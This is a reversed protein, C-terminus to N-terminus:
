CVVMSHSSLLIRLFICLLSLYNVQTHHTCLKSDCWWPLLVVSAKSQIIDKTSFFGVNLQMKSLTLCDTNSCHSSPSSVSSERYHLIMIHVWYKFLPSFFMVKATHYFWQTIITLQGAIQLVCMNTYSPMKDSEGYLLIIICIIQMSLWYKQKFMSLM